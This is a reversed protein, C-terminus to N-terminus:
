LRVLSREKVVDSAQDGERNWHKSFNLITSIFFGLEPNKTKINKTLRPNEISTPFSM